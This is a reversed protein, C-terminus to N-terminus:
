YEREFALILKDLTVTMREGAIAASGNLESSGITLKVKYFNGGGEWEGKGEVMPPPTGATTAAAAAALDPWAKVIIRGETGAIVKTNAYTEQLQRRRARMQIATMNPNAQRAAAVSGRADFNWRGLVPEESYKPSQATELYVKLDKLDPRAITWLERLLEPNKAVARFPEYALLQQASDKRARMESFTQDTGLTQFEAKEGLMLLAPYRALRAELLSNQYVLGAVDAAEYYSAPLRDLARASKVFGTTQLDKAMRTVLRAPFSMGEASELQVTWYGIVYIVFALLVTYATGNIVGLCLGLRRNLREWLSFRLDGAKYRFHVEVKHHVALAISKFIASILCFAIFPPVMWLLVPHQVGFAKLLIACPKALPVALLVGMFIGVLSFAVRIAGQRYGLGMLSLVLVVALIWITM